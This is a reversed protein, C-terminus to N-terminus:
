QSQKNRRLHHIAEISPRADEIGFGGGELIHEYCRTHLDTFGDTFEIEKGGVSLMRYTRKGELRTKQPLDDERISLKWRVVARELHLVGSAHDEEMQDLQNSTVKGFIWILMDFFHVGINTAVGGSKSEDGKWSHRYWNGRCTVYTLEVQQISDPPLLRMDSRLKMIVPHLRLQLITFVKRGTEIEIEALADLNWPNLVLPKECIADAQHRLTFRIHSDHLYNPSCITIYDIKVGRRRIKELHRDFREFETFFDAKPFYGDLIGVSDFRDLAAILNNGTGKIAQLHRPAIYGAVGIIAFNKM